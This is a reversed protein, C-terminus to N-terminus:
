VVSEPSTPAMTWIAGPHAKGPAAFAKTDATRHRIPDAVDLRIKLSCSAAVMAFLSMHSRTAQEM